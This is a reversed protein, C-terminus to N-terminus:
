SKVGKVKSYSFCRKINVSKPSPRINLGTVTYQDDFAREFQAIINDLGSLAKDETYEVGLFDVVPHHLTRFGLSQLHVKEKVLLQPAMLKGNQYVFIGSAVFRLYHEPFRRSYAEQEAAIEAASNEIRQELKQKRKQYKALESAYRKPNAEYKVLKKLVENLKERLEIVVHDFDTSRPDKVSELYRHMLASVTNCDPFHERLLDRKQKPIVLTGQVVYLKASEGFPAYNTIIKRSGHMGLELPVGLQNLEDITYIIREGLHLFGGYLFAHFSDGVKYARYVLNIRVGALRPTIICGSPLPQDTYKQQTNCKRMVEDITKEVANPWVFDKRATSKAAEYDLKLAAIAAAYTTSPAPQMMAFCAWAEAKILSQSLGFGSAYMMGVTNMDPLNGNIAGLVIQRLATTHLAPVIDIESDGMRGHYTFRMHDMTGRNTAVTLLSRGYLNNLVANLADANM